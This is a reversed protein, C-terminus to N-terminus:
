VGRRTKFSVFLSRRCEGRLPTMLIAWPLRLAARPFLCFSNTRGTPASHFVTKEKKNMLLSRLSDFSRCKRKPFSAKLLTFRFAPSENEAAAVCALLLLFLAAKMPFSSENAIGREPQIL